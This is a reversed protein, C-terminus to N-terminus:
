TIAYRRHLQYNNVQMLNDFAFYHIFIIFYDVQPINFDKFCCIVAAFVFCFVRQGVPFCRRSLFPMVADYDM